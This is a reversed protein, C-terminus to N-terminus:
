GLPVTKEDKYDDDEVNVMYAEWDLGRNQYAMVIDWARALTVETAVRVAKKSHKRNWAYVNYLEEM